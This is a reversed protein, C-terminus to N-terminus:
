KGGGAHQGIFLGPVLRLVEQSNTVDRMKIDLKSIYKYQEGPNLSVTVSNLEIVQETLAIVRNWKTFETYSVKRKEYGIASILVSDINQQNIKLSFRGQENTTTTQGGPFFVITAGELPTNTKENVISGAETQASRKGQSFSLVALMLMVGTLFIYRTCFKMRNTKINNAMM